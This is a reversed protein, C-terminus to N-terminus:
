ISNHENVIAYRRKIRAHTGYLKYALNTKIKEADHSLNVNIGYITQLNAYACTSFFNILAFKIMRLSKKM